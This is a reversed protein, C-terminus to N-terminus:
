CRRACPDLRAGHHAVVGRRAGAMRTSRSFKSTRDMEHFKTLPTYAQQLLLVKMGGQYIHASAIRYNRHLAIM